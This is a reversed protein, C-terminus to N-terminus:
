QTVEGKVTRVSDMWDEWAAPDLTGGDAEISIDAMLTMLDDGAEGYYHDLFLSM